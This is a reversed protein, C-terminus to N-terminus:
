ISYLQLILGATQMLSNTDASIHTTHETNMNDSSVRCILFEVTSNSHCGAARWERKEKGEIEKKREMREQAKKM